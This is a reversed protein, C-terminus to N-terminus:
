GDGGTRRLALVVREDALNIQYRGDGTMPVPVTFKADASRALWVDAPSTGRIVATVFINDYSSAPLKLENPVNSLEIMLPVGPARGEAARAPAVISALWLTTLVVLFAFRRLHRNGM